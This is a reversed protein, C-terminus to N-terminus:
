GAGRDGAAVLNHLTVHLEQESVADEVSLSTFEGPRRLHNRGPRLDEVKQEVQDPVSLVHDALVVHQIRHPAPRVTESDVRVLWM